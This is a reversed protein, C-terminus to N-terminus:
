AKSYSLYNKNGPTPGALWFFVCTSFRNSNRKSLGSFTVCNVLFQNESNTVRQQQKKRQKANQVIIKNEVMLCQTMRNIIWMHSKKRMKQVKNILLLYLGM